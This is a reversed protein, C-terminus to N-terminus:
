RRPGPGDTANATVRQLWDGITRLAVPAITEEITSYEPINGTKATQFLHNLGALQAIEWNTSKSEALAVAIAPLNQKASVQLDLSGDIALVPCSLQRLPTGPDYSILDRMTPSVAARAQQEAGPLSGLADRIRKEALVPDKEERLIQFIKSQTEVQQKVAADGGGNARVIDIGQQKMLQDGPVGPGAMM